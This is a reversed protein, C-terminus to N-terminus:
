EVSRGKRLSLCTFGGCAHGGVERGGGVIGEYIWECM